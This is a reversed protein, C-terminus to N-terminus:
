PLGVWMRRRRFAQAVEADLLKFEDVTHTDTDPLRHWTGRRDAVDFVASLEAASLRQKQRKLWRSKTRPDTLVVVNAPRQKVTIQSTGVIALVAKAEVSFGVAQSLLNAARKAEHRSNRLHDTKQGNVMLM